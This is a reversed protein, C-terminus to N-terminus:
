WIVVDLLRNADDGEPRHWVGRKRCEVFYRLFQVMDRLIGRPNGWDTIDGKEDIVVPRPLVSKEMPYRTNILPEAYLNIFGETGGVKEANQVIYFFTSETALVSKTDASLSNIVKPMAHTHWAKVNPHDVYYLTKLFYELGESLRQFEREKYTLLNNRQYDSMETDSQVPAFREWSFEAGLKGWDIFEEEPLEEMEVLQQLEYTSQDMFVGAGVISSVVDESGAIHAMEKAMLEEETCLVELHSIAKEVDWVKPAQYPKRGRRVKRFDSFNEQLHREAYQLTEDRTGFSRFSFMGWQVGLAVGKIGPGEPHFFLFHNEHEKEDAELLHSVNLPVDRVYRYRIVGDVVGNERFTDSGIKEEPMWIISPM